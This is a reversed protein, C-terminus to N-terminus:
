ADLVSLDIGLAEAMDENKVVTLQATEEHEIAMEAPKKGETLIEVGMQGAMKGLEKYDISLTCIGCQMCMNEEGAIIPLKGEKAIQGVQAAGAAITNDTPAYVADVKGVMSEVVSQVENSSSVTYRDHTLGAADCAAEAMEVQIVSNAEATCYLMGVHKAEPLVKQLMAIQEDVPNMDSSGTLNGGPADNDAVLGSAAYDTIATGVIPIDQTAAAVAQAAPTAIVFILDDGDGVLKSAITACASQDNQANQQDIEYKIGSDDLAAVIGENAADLAPHETLQLVGIKYTKDSSAASGSESSASQSGSCGALAMLGLTGGAIFSRRSINSM